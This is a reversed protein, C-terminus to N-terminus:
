KLRKLVLDKFIQAREQFVEETQDYQSNPFWKGYKRFLKLFYELEDKTERIFNKQICESLAMAVEIGVSQYINVDPAFIELTEKVDIVKFINNKQYKRVTSISQLQYNFIFM